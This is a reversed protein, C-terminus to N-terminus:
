VGAENAPFSLRAVGQGLAPPSSQEAVVFRVERRLSAESHDDRALVRLLAASANM